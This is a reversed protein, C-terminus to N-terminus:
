LESVQVLAIPLIGPIRVMVINLSFLSTTIDNVWIVRQNHSVTRSSSAMARDFYNIKGAIFHHHEM